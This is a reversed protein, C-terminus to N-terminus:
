LKVISGMENRGPAFSLLPGSPTRCLLTRQHKAFLSANVLTSASADTSKYKRMYRPHKCSKKRARIAASQCPLPIRLSSYARLDVFYVIPCTCTVKISVNTLYISPVYYCIATCKSTKVVISQHSCRKWPTM